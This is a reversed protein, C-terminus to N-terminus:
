RVAYRRKPEAKEYKVKPEILYLEVPNLQNKVM